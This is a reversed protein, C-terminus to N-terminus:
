DKKGTGHPEKLLMLYDGISGDDGRIFEWKVAKESLVTLKSLGYHTTDLRATINAAKQGKDLESHSEINGAMGNIIHTISKGPNARYTHNNVISATDITGNAAM